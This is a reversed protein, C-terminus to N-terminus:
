YLMSGIGAVGIDANRESPTTQRSIPGASFVFRSFPLIKLVIRACLTAYRDYHEPRLGVLGLMDRAKFEPTALRMVKQRDGSKIRYDKWRFASASRSSM